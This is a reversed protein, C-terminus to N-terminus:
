SLKFRRQKDGFNLSRYLFSYGLPPKWTHQLLDLCENNSFTCSRNCQMIDLYGSDSPDSTRILVSCGSSTCTSISLANTAAMAALATSLATMTSLSGESDESSLRLGAVSEDSM